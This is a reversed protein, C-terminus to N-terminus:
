AASPQVLDVIIEAYRRLDDTQIIRAEGGRLLSVPDWLFPGANSPPITLDRDSPNGGNIEFVAAAFDLVRTSLGLLASALMINVTTLEPASDELVVARELLGLANQPDDPILCFGLNNIASASEPDQLLIAEFLARADQRRGEGIFKLAPEVLNNTMAETLSLERRETQRFRSYREAIVASLDGPAVDRAKM